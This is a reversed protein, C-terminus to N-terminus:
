WSGLFTRRQDTQLRKGVLQFDCDHSFYFDFLDATLPLDVLRPTASPIAGAAAADAAAM